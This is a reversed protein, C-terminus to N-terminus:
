STSTNKDAFSAPNSAPDSSSHSSPVSSIGASGASTPNVTNTNAVARRIPRAEPLLDDRIFLKYDSYGKLKRCSALILRKDWCSEFKILLPRPRSQSNIAPKRGLRFADNLRAARGILHISMKDIASKTDLQSAEPLGFLILNHSRDPSRSPLASASSSALSSSGKSDSKSLSSSDSSHPTRFPMETAKSFSMVSSSFQSLQSKLEAILKDLTSCSKGLSDSSSAAVLFPLDAVKNKLSDLTSTNAELKASLPDPALSPLRILENAECFIAPLKEVSDLKDFATTIDTFHMDAAQRKESGRRLHYSLGLQKLDDGCKDWLCKHATALSSSDFTSLVAQKMGLTDGKLRYAKIFALASDILLGSGSIGPSPSSAKDTHIGISSLFTGLQVNEHLISRRWYKSKTKGGLSEFENPSYWVTDCLICKLSGQNGPAKIKDLYLVGLWM